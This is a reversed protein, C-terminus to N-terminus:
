YRINWTSNTHPLIAVAGFLLDKKFLKLLGEDTRYLWFTMKYCSWFVLGLQLYKFTMASSYFEPEAIGLMRIDTKNVWSSICILAVCM